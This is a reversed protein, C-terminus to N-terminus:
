TVFPYQAEPFKPTTANYVNMLAKHEVLSVPIHFPGQLATKHDAVSIVKYATDESQVDEAKEVASIVMRAVAGVRAGSNIVMKFILYKIDKYFLSAEIGAALRRIASEMKVHKLLLIFLTDDKQTM